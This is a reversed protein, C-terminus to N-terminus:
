DWPARLNSDPAPDRGTLPSQVTFMAASIEALQVKYPGRQGWEWGVVEFPKASYGYKPLTVEVVDFLELEAAQEGLTME